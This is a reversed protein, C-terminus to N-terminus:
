SRPARFARLLDDVLALNWRHAAHPNPLETGSGIQDIQETSLEMLAERVARLATAVAKPDRLPDESLSILGEVAIIGTQDVARDLLTWLGVAHRRMFAAVHEAAVAAQEEEARIRVGTEINM